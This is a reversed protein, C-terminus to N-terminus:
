NVLYRQGSDPLVTVVYDGVKMNEALKVATYVNAGSSIGTYLGENQTLINMMM